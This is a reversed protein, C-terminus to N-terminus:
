SSSVTRHQSGLAHGEGELEANVSGRDAPPFVANPSRIYSRPNDADAACSLNLGVLHHLRAQTVAPKARFTPLPQRRRFLLANSTIAAIM